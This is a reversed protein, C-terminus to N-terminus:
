KLCRSNFKDSLEGTRYELWWVARKNDPLSNLTVKLRGSLHMMQQLYSRSDQATLTGILPAKLRGAEPGDTDELIAIAASATNFYSREPETMRRVTVAAGSDDRRSLLFFAEGLTKQADPDDALDLYDAMSPVSPFQPDGFIQLLLPIAFPQKQAADANRPTMRASDPYVGRRRITQLMRQDVRPHFEKIEKCPQQQSVPVSSEAKPPPAPERCGGVVLVLGLTALHM